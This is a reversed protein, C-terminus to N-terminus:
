ANWFFFADPEDSSPEQIYGVGFNGLSGPQRLGHALTFRLVMQGLDVSPMMALLEEVAIDTLVSRMSAPFELSFWRGGFTGGCALLSSDSALLHEELLLM